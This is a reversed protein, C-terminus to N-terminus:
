NAQAADFAEILEHIEEMVEDATFGLDPAMEDALARIKELRLRRMEEDFAHIVSMFLVSDTFKESM